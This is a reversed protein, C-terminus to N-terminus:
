REIKLRNLSRINDEFEQINIKKARERERERERERKRKSM